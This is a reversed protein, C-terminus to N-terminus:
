LFSYDKNKIRVPSKPSFQGDEKQSFALSDNSLDEVDSISKQAKKKGM